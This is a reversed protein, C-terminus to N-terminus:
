PATRANGIKERSRARQDNRLLAARIEDRAAYLRYLAPNEPIGLTSAVEAMTMGELEYLAFVERKEESLAGLAAAILHVTECRLASELQEPEVRVEVPEADFQEHRRAAKRRAALAVRVAIGYIWTRLSSRGEFDALRAHVVLFVDQCADELDAQRVGHRSLVRWVFASHAEFLSRFSAFDATLAPSRTEVNRVCASARKSGTLAPLECNGRFFLRPGTAKALAREFWGSRVGEAAINARV